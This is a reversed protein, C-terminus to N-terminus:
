TVIDHSSHIFGFRPNLVDQYSEVGVCMLLVLVGSDGSIVAVGLYCCPFGM